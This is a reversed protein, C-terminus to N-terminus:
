VCVVCGACTSSVATVGGVDFLVWPEHQGAGAAEAAEGPVLVGMLATMM